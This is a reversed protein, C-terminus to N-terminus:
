TAICNGSSFNRRVLVMGAVWMSGRDDQPPREKGSSPGTCSAAAALLAVPLNCPNKAESLIVPSHNLIAGGRFIM